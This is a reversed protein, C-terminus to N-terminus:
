GSLRQRWQDETLTLREGIPPTTAAMVEPTAARATSPMAAPATNM